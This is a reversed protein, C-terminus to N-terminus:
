CSFCLQTNLFWVYYIRHNRIITIVPVLILCRKELPPIISRKFYRQCESILNELNKIVPAQKQINCNLFILCIMWETEKYKIVLMFCKRYYMKMIFVEFQSDLPPSSTHGRKIQCNVAKLLRCLPQYLENLRPVTQVGFHISEAIIQIRTLSM